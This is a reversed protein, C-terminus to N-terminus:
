KIIANIVKHFELPLLSAGGILAGNIEKKELFSKANKATVSGGYLVKPNLIYFKSYLIEKIFKIMEVADEPTDPKSGKETSIAWIPEYAIILKKAKLKMLKNADKLDEKLQAAIFKKATSIGRGRIEAKEGVCLIAYLGAELASKVKKNILEDTEGLYKRRESHGIIVYKVKMIKLDRASVEGTYPGDAWFLDQAGLSSKKLQKYVASLYPFPPAIVVNKADTAKALKIASALDNPNSKWNAIIIKSM